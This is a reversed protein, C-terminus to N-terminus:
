VVKKRKQASRERKYITSPKPFQASHIKRLNYATALLVFEGEVKKEGRLHFQRFGQCQKIQGWVPEVIAKRMRYIAKGEDNHVKEHMAEKKADDEYRSVMRKGTKSKTCESRFECDKCDQGEYIRVTPKDPDNQNSITKLPLLRGAPCRYVDMEPQYIFNVKDFRNKAEKAERSDAIYADVGSAEAAKINNASSYGADATMKVPVKGTTEKISQLVGEFQQKDNSCNSMKLGVILGHDADVAIQPNYAQIVGQTKTDMIRSAPDTFNIQDKEPKRSEDEPKREDLEKLMRKIKDLRITRTTLEKEAQPFLVSPAGEAQDDQQAKELVEAIEKELKEIEKKMRDRSMAKHKSANAKVKSGDISVHGLSAYGLDNAIQVIQVFYKPLDALHDKRFDSITRHDPRLGGSLWRFPINEILAEHLKRSTFIGTAYGYFLIKLLLAPHYAEEGRNSYKNTISSLNLQDVIDNVLYVLHNEPIWEGLYIPILHGQDVPTPIFKAM